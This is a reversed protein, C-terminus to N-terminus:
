FLPGDKNEKFWEREAIFDAEIETIIVQFGPDDVLDGLQGRLLWSPLRLGADVV